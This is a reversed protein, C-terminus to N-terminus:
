ADHRRGYNRPEGKWEWDSHPYAESYTGKLAWVFTRKKRWYEWVVEKGTNHSAEGPRVYTDTENEQLTEESLKRPGWLAYGM